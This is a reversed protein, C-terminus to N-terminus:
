IMIVLSLCMKILWFLFWQFWRSISKSIETAYFGHKLIQCVRPFCKRGGAPQPLMKGAFFQQSAQVLPLWNALPWTFTASSAFNYVLENLKQLMTQAVHLQANDHLLIRGKRYVLIPHLCQLKRHTKVTQQVCKESTITKGPNLFSFHMLHAVSWWVTAMIKKKPPTLKAKPLAKSNRLGVASGTTASQRICDMKQQVDCDSLSITQQQMSHSFVAGWFSLKLFKRNAWSAGM